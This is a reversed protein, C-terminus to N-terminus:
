KNQDMFASSAVGVGSMSQYYKMAATNTAAKAKYEQRQSSVYESLRKKNEAELTEIRSGIDICTRIMEQLKKIEGDYVGGQDYVDQRIREYVAQFGEDLQNIRAILPEKKNLTELFADDNYESAKLISEQEKTIDLIQALVQEKNTLTDALVKLYNDFNGM